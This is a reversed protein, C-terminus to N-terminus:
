LEGDEASPHPIHGFWDDIRRTVAMRDQPAANSLLTKTLDVLDIEDFAGTVAAYIQSHTHAVAAASWESPESDIADFHDEIEAILLPDVDFPMDATM